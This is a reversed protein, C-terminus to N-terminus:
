KSYVKGGTLPMSIGTTKPFTIPLNYIKRAALFAILEAEIMDAEIGLSKANKLNYNTNLKKSLLWMLQSNEAGGGTIMIEKPKRPLLNLSNIISNVTCDLLTAMIDEATMNGFYKLIFDFYSKDLSKPYLKSFYNDKLLKNVIYPHCNGKSAVIGDNDFKLGFTNQMFKDMLCNGPGTDFGVLNSGDWYSLNAIGGINIICSPLKFNNNEIIHKHYIPAIPAGQGGNLIDNIRFDCVVPTKLLTSLFKGNGVQITKKSSPDHFITQGHFGILDPRISTNKLLKKTASYHDITVMHELDNYFSFNDICKAPNKLANKLLSITSKSYHAITTINYRNLIKGNTSVLTANIGDMSTGSMLGVTNIEINKLM